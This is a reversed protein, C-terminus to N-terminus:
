EEITVKAAAEIDTDDVSLSVLNNLIGGYAIKSSSTIEMEIYNSLFLPRYM